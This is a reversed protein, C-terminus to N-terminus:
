KTGKQGRGKEGEAEKMAEQNNVIYILRAQRTRRFHVEIGSSRLSPALRRLLNSLGRASTPWSNGRLRQPSYCQSLALHLETATGEWSSQQELLASLAAVIPLDALTLEHTAQQNQRYAELFTEPEIGLAPCAAISWLAFDAMRPLQELKVHPLQRLVLTVADLLAGLLQPRLAEYRSWLVQQATRQDPSITPLYLLLSRDLLDGRTALDEIGTLIVPRAANIVVEEDDQYLARTAFSGGTSLLCLSDSLWPPIHSLNDFSLVWSNAAALMLDRNERPYARLATAGPDVLDKLMQGLTSKGTGQEGQLFLIPYPGQPNFAAVLWSVVLSWDEPLINLLGQLDQLSGGPEPLPLSRLTGPQYFRVPAHSIVQWGEPGIEVVSGDARGLDLYIREGEAALRLHVPLESGEFLAMGELVGLADQIAQARPVKRYHYYFCRALWDRFTKSRLRLTQHRGEIEVYAYAVQQPTHFLQLSSSQILNVLQTAQSQLETKLHASPSPQLGLDPSLPVQPYEPM